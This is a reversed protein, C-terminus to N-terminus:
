HYTTLPLHYTISHYTILLPVSLAQRTGDPLAFIFNLFFAVAFRKYKDMMGTRGYLLPM